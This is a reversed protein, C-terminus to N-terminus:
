AAPQLAIGSSVGASAAAPQPALKAAFPQVFVELEQLLDEWHGPLMEVQALMQEWRVRFPREM